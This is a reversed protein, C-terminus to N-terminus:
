KIKWIDIRENCKKEQDLDMLAVFFAVLQKKEDATIEPTDRAPIRISMTVNSNKIKM